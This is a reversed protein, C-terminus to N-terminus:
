SNKKALYQEIKIKSEEVMEQKVINEMYYGEKYVIRNVKANILLKLCSMCPFTTCYLTTDGDISTGHLAAQILCNVEAHVGRCLEPHEGEELYQRVCTEETCHKLGSPAGNYGTSLIHNIKVLVAGVKRKICTSRKSVIEAIEMFYQDKPIRTEKETAM